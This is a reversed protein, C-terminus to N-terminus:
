PEYIAVINEEKVFYHKKGEIEFEELHKIIFKTGKPYKSKIEGTERLYISEYSNSLLVVLDGKVEDVRFAGQEQVPEVWLYDNLPKMVMDEGLGNINAM